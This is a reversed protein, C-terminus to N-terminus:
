GALLILFRSSCLSSGPSLGTADNCRKNKKDVTQGRHQQETEVDSGYVTGANANKMRM